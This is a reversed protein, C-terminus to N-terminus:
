TELYGQCFIVVTLGIFKAIVVLRGWFVDNYLPRNVNSTLRPLSFEPFYCNSVESKKSVAEEQM